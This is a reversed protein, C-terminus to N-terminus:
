VQFHLIITWILGLLIAPKGDVVDTANINVLKIRRQELFRLVTNVNSLFHPRRLIRARERPLVQGSLIELLALLKTGDRLDQIVDDVRLPPNRQSLFNNIWNMFVKKQVREQEDSVLFITR